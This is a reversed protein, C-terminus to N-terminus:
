PSENKSEFPLSQRYRERKDIMIISENRGSNKIREDGVSRLASVRGQPDLSQLPLGSWVPMRPLCKADDLCNMQHIGRLRIRERRKILFVRQGHPAAVTQGPSTGASM